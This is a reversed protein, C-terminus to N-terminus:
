DDRVRCEPLAERLRAVGDKLAEVVSDDISGTEDADFEEPRSLDLHKIGKGSIDRSENMVLVGVLTAAGAKTTSSALAAVVAGPERGLRRRLEGMGKHVRLRCANESIGLVQVVDDAEDPRCGMRRAIDTAFRVHPQVLKEFAHEDRASQWSKWLQHDAQNVALYKGAM